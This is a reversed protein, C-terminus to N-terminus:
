KVAVKKGNIIYVNGRRVDNVKKGSLTFIEANEGYVAKIAAIATTGSETVLVDVWKVGEVGAVYVQLQNKFTGNEGYTKEVNVTVSASEGAAVKEITATGLEASYEDYVTVVVNEADAMGSNTVTVTVGFSEAGKQAEVTAVEFSLEAVGNVVPVLKTVKDNTTDADGEVNVWAILEAEAGADEGIEFDAVDITFEVYGNKGAAVNVTQEQANDNVSFMITVNELDQNGKNEYWVQVKNEATLDIQSLGQIATIAMDIVQEVPEPKVTVTVEAQTNPVIVYMTHEGATTFPNVVDAFTVTAEEGAALAEITQAAIEGNYFLKVSVNEADVESTNKVTAVIDFKEAGFEIEVPQADVEFAAVPAEGNIVPVLRMVKNNEANEDGEVNVWAVLEAEVDESPEFDAVDITFEVYGSEGAKVLEVTQEQPNNNVSFMVVVNELDVNGVNEYWVSVKNEQTLDIQSVGQIAIVAMDIVQEVPAAEFTVAVDAQAKGAQVYYTRTQGFAFPAEETAEVTFTVEAEAGAALTEITQNAIVSNYFLKVEVDAADVESTNKVTAKIEFSEAGYAVTVAEAAVEFAAEAENKVVTATMSSKNNEANEDGDVNVFGEITAELGLDEIPDFLNTVDLTFEVYNQQGPEVTVTQRGAENDNVLLIIDANEVTVNGENKYWVKYINEGNLDIESKGQVATIAMDIVEAEPETVKVTVDRMTTTANGNVKSVWVKYDYSGAELKGLNFTVDASEGAAIEVSQLFGVLQYELNEITYVGVKVESADVDSTNTLTAAIVVDEETTAEIDAIKAIAIEAVPAPCTLTFTRMNDETNSDAFNTFVTFDYSKGAEFTYNFKFTLMKYGGAKVDVTQPECLGDGYSRYLEIKVDKADVDESQNFVSVSVSIEQEGAEVDWGSIPNIMIEATPEVEGSVVPLTKEVKNNSADVDGDVNVMAVLTAETDEAPEIFDNVNFTFNVSGNKGAEVTVEQVGAENDNVTLVINTTITTNGKNEYWVQVTNEDKMSLESLGRIDTIAMDIKEEEQEALVTVTFSCGYKNGETLAQMNYEGAALADITFTVDTDAGAVLADITETAIIGNHWLNIKVNEAAIDSTNKVNVTITISEAPLQVEVNEAKLEFTAEPVTKTITATMSSKNNTADVDGDVNVFGMITADRNLDEAEDFDAMDLTFEVYGSQGAEVTVAQRGVENEGDLLLIIEAGEVTVNGKNEYYVKYTPAEGALDITQPGTVATIAMDIRDEEPAAEFTVTVSALYTGNVYLYYTNEGEGFLEKAVTLTVEATAGAALSAVTETAIAESINKRLEVTVNEGAVESTNQLTAVVSYSEATYPVTVADASISYTAEAAKKTFTVTKAETTFADANDATLAMTVTHEGAEISTLDFKMNKWKEDGIALTGIEWATNEAGDVNVTLKANQAAADGDNKAYVVFVKAEDMDYTDGLTTSSINLVPATEVPGTTGGTYTVAISSIYRVGTRQSARFILSSAEGSWTTTMAESDNTIGYSSENKGSANCTVLSASGSSFTFVITKIKVDDARGAITLRNGNYFYVSGSDYKPAQDGGGEIWTLSINADPYITTLADGSSANWTVTTEDEQAFMSGCVMTLAALLLSRFTTKM